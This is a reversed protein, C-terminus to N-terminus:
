NPFWKDYNDMWSREEVLLCKSAIWVELRSPNPDFDKYKMLKFENKDPDLLDKLLDSLNKNPYDIFYGGLHKKSPSYGDYNSFLKDPEDQTLFKDVQKIANELTDKDKDTFSPLQKGKYEPHNSVFNFTNSLIVNFDNLYIPGVYKKLIKFMYDFSFWIDRDSAIGINAGNFPCVIMCDGYSRAQKSKTTCILSKSRKPYKKWASLIEDMLLTYYNSTNVSKRPESNSPDVLGFSPANQIGRYIEQNKKIDSCNKHFIEVAMELSIPQTRGESLLFSKFRM